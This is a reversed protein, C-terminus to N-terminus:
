ANYCDGCIPVYQSRSDFRDQNEGLKKSYRAIGQCDHCKSVMKYIMQAYCLFEATAEFTMQEFDLDLGACYIEPASIRHLLPAVMHPQAFQIEDILLIKSTDVITSLTPVLYGKIQKNDHTTFTREQRHQKRDYTLRYYVTNEQQALDLLMTSKGAYMPGVFCTIKPIKM